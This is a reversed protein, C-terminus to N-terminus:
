RATELVLRVGNPSTPDVVVGAVLDAHRQDGVVRIGDIAAFEVLRQGWLTDPKPVYITAAPPVQAALDSRIQEFQRRTREEAAINAGKLLDVGKATGTFAGRGATILLFGALAVITVRVAFRLLQPASRGPPYATSTAGPVGTASNTM